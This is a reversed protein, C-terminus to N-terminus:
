PSLTRGVRFGGDGYNRGGASGRIRVASRLSQPIVNWSGGRVVRNGINPCRTTWASGDSPPDGGYDDHWCDEVWEWVNGHMDYLGFKNATFSGVPAPQRRDWQSGCGDCNANGKGIEDGWSYATDAGARAAYEWEAESLLRYHRDTMKRLWAVYQQAADWNVNNVPKTGRGYGSDSAQLCGGVTVCADWQEFTVEFKSVAFPRAITVTHQPGEIGNRGKETAPSGMTFEGAPAVIMEPCDKACERFSELPKLAREAETTLVYADVNAVRYPRMTWYWNWEEKVYAQNIWGVLGTIIGVLLTYILAQVRRARVRQRTAAQRSQGIYARTEETPAPAGKPRSTMWFESQELLPSRLLLGSPREALAWRRANEGFETHQRIWGIHSDLANALRDACEEFPAGVFDIRNIRALAEPVAADDVSRCVIPAFRKNLSAAYEVEKKCEPSMVADPSLVFVVTDAQAILDGIRKRWDELDSIGSRDILPEFGRAKVAAELRDAFAMDKRSYSIFTRAKPEAERAHEAVATM